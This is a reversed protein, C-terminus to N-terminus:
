YFCAVIGQWMEVGGRRIFLEYFLHEVIKDNSALLLVKGCRWGEEESSFTMSFTHLLKILLLLCCNRTVLIRYYFLIGLVSNNLFRPIQLNFVFAKESWLVMQFVSYDKILFLLLSHSKTTNIKVIFM